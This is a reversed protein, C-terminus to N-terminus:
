FGHETREIIMQQWKEDLTIFRANWGSVRVSLTRYADPDEQARRLLEANLVDLQMFFGGLSVFGDMLATLAPIGNEGSVASPSLKVDLAAGNTLRIMPGKCYSAIVATAGALDTGPTPSTNGSLLEGARRGFPTAPRHPAWEIQRGFTSVGAPFLVPMQGQRKEVCDCFMNLVDCTYADAEDSDNGYYTYHRAVYQRLAEEGEWNNKLITMLRDFSVKKERFCLRDIAYLSNGVDPAGGIHPSVVSYVAGGEMYSRAKEICGDEFLSIVTCPQKERRPWFWSGDLLRKVFTDRTSSFIEEVSDDLRALFAARLSAYDDFHAPEGDLRLTDSLLVKLSDFPRYGFCTKGPVQVEWCGDNAFNRAEREEYGFRTLADLILPENYFALVGGGHQVVCAAKEKLWDPTQENLRLTIPFDGIPLEEVIDLILGTAPGSVERGEEDIGALVLNQYNQADGSGPATDSRVWECGKIFFGALFERAEELTITGEELERSLFPNLMKDLRGIGPWNGCLRVFSFTFWVSQVAERFTRAPGFPVQRLRAANEPAQKDLLSLYRGHYTRLAEVCRDASELFRREEADLTTKRLREHIQRQKADIGEAVVREFNITLHSVSGLPLKGQFRAPVCHDLAAGLTASGSVPEGPVYRLPANRAIREIALDYQEIPPLTGFDAIDDMSVSDLRMAEDGYKGHLSEWAWQRITLPLRIPRPSACASDFLIHDM